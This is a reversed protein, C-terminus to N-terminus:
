VDIVIPILKSNIILYADSTTVSMVFIEPSLMSFKNNDSFACFVEDDSEFSYKFYAYGYQDGQLGGVNITRTNNNTNFYFHIYYKPFGNLRSDNRKIYLMAENKYLDISIKSSTVYTLNRKNITISKSKNYLKFYQINIKDINNLTVTRNSLSFIQEELENIHIDKNKLLEDNSALNNQLSQIEENMKNSLENNSALENQLSQIEENMKNNVKNNLALENQISQIEKNMEKIHTERLVVNNKLMQIEENMEEKIKNSSTLENKLMQIEENVEEKIKNSSTLKNTLMQIEENMEEKIKNSSTLKNKLM